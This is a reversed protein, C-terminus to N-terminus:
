PWDILTFTVTRSQTTIVGALVTASLVYTISRTQNTTNTINGVVERATADLTVVGDSTAGTPAVLSLTLTVGAPMVSNLQATIKQPLTAKKAKVTYTTVTNTVSTPASGPAAATMITMAAPSGSVTITNAAQAGVRNGFCLMGGLLAAHTLAIRWRHTMSM